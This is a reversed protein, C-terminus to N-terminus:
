VQYTKKKFSTQPKFKFDDIYIYFNLMVGINTSSTTTRASSTKAEKMVTYLNSHGHEQVFEQGLNSPRNLSSRSSSTAAVPYKAEKMITYLNSHGLEQVFNQNPLTTAKTINTLNSQSSTPASGIPYKAEKMITYLNSHNLEQTQTPLIPAMKKTEVFSNPRSVEHEKVEKMITNLNSHPVDYHQQPTPQSINSSTMTTFDYHQLNPKSPQHPESSINTLSSHTSSSQTLNTNNIHPHTTSPAKAERMIKYLQSHNSPDAHLEHINTVSSHHSSMSIAENHPALPYKAERMITYLNSHGM